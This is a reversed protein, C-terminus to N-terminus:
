IFPPELGNLPFDVSFIIKKQLPFNLPLFNLPFFLKKETYASFWRFFYIKEAAPFEATFIKASFIASFYRYFWRLFEASFFVM